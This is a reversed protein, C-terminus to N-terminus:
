GEALAMLHKLFFSRRTKAANRAVSTAWNRYDVLDSESKCTFQVVSIARKLNPNTTTNIKEVINLDVFSYSSYAHEYGISNASVSISSITFFLLSILVIFTRMLWTKLIATFLIM